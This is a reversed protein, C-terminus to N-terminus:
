PFFIRVFTAHDVAVKAMYRQSICYFVIWVRVYVCFWVIHTVLFELFQFIKVIRFSYYNFNIEFVPNGFWLRIMEFLILRLHIIYLKIRECTLRFCYKVCIFPSCHKLMQKYILKNIEGSIKSWKLLFMRQYFLRVIFLIVGVNFDFLKRIKM